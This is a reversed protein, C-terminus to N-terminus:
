VTRNLVIQGTPCKVDGNPTYVTSATDEGAAMTLARDIYSLSQKILMSNNANVRGLADVVERLATRITNLSAAEEDPAGDLLAELKMPKGDGGAPGPDGALARREEELAAVEKILAMQLEVHEGLHEVDGKILAQQEAELVSCLRWLLDVERALTGIVARLDAVSIRSDDPSTSM